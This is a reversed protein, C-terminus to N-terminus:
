KRQDPPQRTTKRVAGVLLLHHFPHEALIQAWAKLSGIEQVRDRPARFQSMLLRLAAISSTGGVPTKNLLRLQAWVELWPLWPALSTFLAIRSGRSWGLRWSFTSGQRCEQGM